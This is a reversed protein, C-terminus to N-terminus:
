FEKVVKCFCFYHFSLLDFSPTLPTILTILFLNLFQVLLTTNVKILNWDKSPGNPIDFYRARVTFAVIRMYM